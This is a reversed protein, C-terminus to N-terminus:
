PLPSPPLGLFPALFQYAKNCLTVIKAGGELAGAALKIADIAKKILSADPKEKNAAEAQAAEVHPTFEARAKPSPLEGIAQMLEQLLPVLAALDTGQNHTVSATNGTGSQAASREGTSISINPNGGSVQVNLSPSSMHQAGNQPRTLPDSQINPESRQFAHLESWFERIEARLTDADMGLLTTTAETAPIMVPVRYRDAFGHVADAQKIGHVVLTLSGRRVKTITRFRAALETRQEPSLPGADLTGETENRNGAFVVFYVAREFDIEIQEGGAPPKVTFTDRPLPRKPDDSPVLHLEGGFLATAIVACIVQDDTPVHLVYRENGPKAAHQAQVVLRCAALFYLAAAVEEVHRREALQGQAPVSQLARRVVYFLKQIEDGTSEMFRQVMAAATVPALAPYFEEVFESMLADLFQASAAKGLLRNALRQQGIEILPVPTGELSDKSPSTAEMAQLGGEACVMRGIGEYGSAFRNGNWWSMLTTPIHSVHGEDPLVPYFKDNRMANNFIQQTIIAGEYTAGLGAEPAATNEFREKLKPSCVVLVTDAQNICGLMWAQWGEPPPRDIYRHDTFVTCGRKVLWDALAKVAARLADSEHAYSIFVKPAQPADPPM